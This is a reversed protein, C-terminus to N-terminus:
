AYPALHGLAEAGLAEALEVVDQLDSGAPHDLHIGCAVSVVGGLSAAMRAALNRALQDEMHGALTIVSTTASPPAGPQHSPRAQSVAVAGIHAQDGGCLSVSLDAGMPVCVMRLAIRGRRRTLTLPADPDM